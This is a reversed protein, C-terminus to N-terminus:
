ARAYHHHLGRLIDHSKVSGIRQILRWDTEYAKHATALAVELDDGSIAEFIQVLEGTAPNVTQFFMGSETGMTVAAIIM